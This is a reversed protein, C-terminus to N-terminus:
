ARLWLTVGNSFKCNAFKSINQQQKERERERVWIWLPPFKFSAAEFHQCETNEPSTLSRFFNLSINDFAIWVGIKSNPVHLMFGSCLRNKSKWKCSKSNKAKWKECVEAFVFFMQIRHELQIKLFYDRWNALVKIFM